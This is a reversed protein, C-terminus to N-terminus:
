NRVRAASNLNAFTADMIQEAQALKIANSNCVFCPVIGAVSHCLHWTAPPLHRDHCPTADRKKPFLFLLGHGLDFDVHRTRDGQLRFNQPHGNETSSQVERFKTRIGLSTPLCGQERKGREGRGSACELINM